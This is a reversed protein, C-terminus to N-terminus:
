RILVCPQRVVRDGHVLTYYYVGSALKEGSLTVIHEGAPLAGDVLRLLERGAVDSLFLRTTGEGPLRFRLTTAERFPNPAAPALVIPYAATASPGVGSPDFVFGARSLGLQIDANQSIRSWTAGTRYNEIMIAIPGQDIGIYDTDWWNVTLNFADRFGYPGWLQAHYNDYLNHLVALCEAPAFPISSAPATPVLTGNDNQAPPAGRASYGYPDDSATIGWLSPGYGVWGAPNAICYERQALTARRSNEFYTIGQSTMYSDKIFRFDVWCHSYQHGFLPPFNVYSYGYYTMWDYGSTWASWATTPVPHTPSGLALFYLIMAENYGIWQGFGAFGTGPKWGMLIGPNLNRFFNWDARQYISDALARLDVELPDASDFYQKADLIGGMLLASDITSVECSWTRTATTMDLFHYFLGKYGIFGSAGSGQPGNWFTQLTTRVRDRGEARTIWGHDVGICIASLGFGVSAISAPSTATSRDKILGNAPNAQEWFFRFAKHQLSDMLAEHSLSAAVQSAALGGAIAALLCIVAVRTVGGM